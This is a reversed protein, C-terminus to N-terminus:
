KLVKWFEIHEKIDQSHKSCYGFEENRPLYLAVGIADRMCDKFGCIRSPSHFAKGTKLITDLRQQPNGPEHLRVYTEANDFVWASFSKGERQLISLLVKYTSRKNKNVYVQILREHKEDSNQRPRGLRSIDIDIYRYEEERDEGEEGSL